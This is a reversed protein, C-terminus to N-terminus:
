EERTNAERVRDRLTSGLSAKKRPPPSASKEGPHRGPEASNGTLEALEAAADMLRELEHVRVEVADYVGCPWIPGEQVGYAAAHIFDRLERVRNRTEDFWPNPEPYGNVCIRHPPKPQCLRGEAKDIAVSSPNDVSAAERQIRAKSPKSVTKMAKMKMILKLRRREGTLQRGKSMLFAINLSPGPFLRFLASINWVQQSNCKSTAM